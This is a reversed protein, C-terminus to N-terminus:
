WSALAEMAPIIWHWSLNHYPDGLVLRNVFVPLPGHVSQCILHIQSYLSILTFLLDKLSHDPDLQDGSENMQVQENWFM